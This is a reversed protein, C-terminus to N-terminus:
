WDVRDDANVSDHGHTAETRDDYHVADGHSSDPAPQDSEVTETWCAHGVSAGGDAVDVEVMDTWNQAGNSSGHFDDFVFPSHAHHDSVAHQGHEAGSDADADAAADSGLGALDDVLRASPDQKDNAM